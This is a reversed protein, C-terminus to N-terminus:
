QDAPGASDSATAVAKRPGRAAAARKASVYYRIKPPVHKPTPIRVGSFVVDLYVYQARPPVRLCSQLSAHRRSEDLWSYVMVQQLLASVKLGHKQEFWQLVQDVTLDGENIDFRDWFSMMLGQRMQILPVEVPEYMSVFPDALNMGSNKYLSLNKIGMRLKILELSM